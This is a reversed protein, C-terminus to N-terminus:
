LSEAAHDFDFKRQSAIGAAPVHANRDAREHAKHGLCGRTANAHYYKKFLWIKM